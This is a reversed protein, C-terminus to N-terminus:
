LSQRTGHLPDLNPNARGGDRYFEIVERLTKMSGDHMYPATLAVNRLAPTKFAGRDAEVGTVEFRGLDPPEASLGVGTNHFKEDSFHRGSHCRWCRGSSEFIWKGRRAPESLATFEGAMFRDAPSEDAILTREFSAIARAINEPTIGDEFSSEFRRPYDADSKLREIVEEITSGFETENEIPMLAQEELSGARGDWFQITTEHRNLISPANRRGSRGHVGSPVATEGAFAREPMHCTACSIVGDDSLVPDFFLSRGLEIIEASGANDDRAPTEHNPEIGILVGLM